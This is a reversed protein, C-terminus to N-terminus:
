EEININTSDKKININKENLKLNINKDIINETNLNLKQINKIQLDLNQQSNIELDIPLVYRNIIIIDGVCIMGKTILALGM